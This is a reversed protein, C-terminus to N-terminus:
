YHPKGDREGLEDLGDISSRTLGIWRNFKLAINSRIKSCNLDLIQTQPPSYNPKAPTEHHAMKASRGKTVKELAVRNILSPHSRKSHMAAMDRDGSDPYAFRKCTSRNPRRGPYEPETGRNATLDPDLRKGALPLNGPTDHFPVM